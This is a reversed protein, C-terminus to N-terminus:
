SYLRTWDSSLVLVPKDLRLLDRARAQGTQPSCSYPTTWDSSFVLVPNDLRLLDRARPQGTQPSCSYPSTWDSSIVLVPKDLRLLARTRAQGTSSFMTNSKLSVLIHPEKEGTIELSSEVMGAIYDVAWGRPLQLLM